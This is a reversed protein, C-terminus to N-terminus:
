IERWYEVMGEKGYRTHKRMQRGQRFTVGEIKGGGLLRPKASGPPCSLDKPNSHGGSDKIRTPNAGGSGAPTCPEKIKGNGIFKTNTM